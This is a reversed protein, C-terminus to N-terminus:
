QAAGDDQAEVTQSGLPLSDTSHAAPPVLSCSQCDTLNIGQLIVDKISHHASDKTLYNM